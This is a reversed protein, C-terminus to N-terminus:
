EKPRASTIAQVEEPSLPTESKGGFVTKSYVRSSNHSQISTIVIGNASDDLVALSFSFQGGMDGTANYRVVALHRLAAAVDRQAVVVSQGLKSVKEVLDDVREVQALNASLIDEETATGRFIVMQKRAKKAVLLAYIAMLFAGGAVALAVNLQTEVPM